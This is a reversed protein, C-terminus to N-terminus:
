AHHAFRFVGPAQPLNGWCATRAGVRFNAQLNKPPGGRVSSAINAFGGFLGLNAVAYGNCKLRTTSFVPSKSQEKRKAEGFYTQLNARAIQRM